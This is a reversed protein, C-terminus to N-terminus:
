HKLAPCLRGAKKKAFWVENARLRYGLWQTSPM